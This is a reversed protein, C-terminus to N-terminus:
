SRRQVRPDGEVIWQTLLARSIKGSGTLPLEALEYYQSPRHSAPLEAAGARLLALADPSTSSRHADSYPAAPRFAAIVRHGRVPDPLGAVIVDMETGSSSDGSSGGNSNRRLAQEVAHPYVNAGSSLIMDSARGALRLKGHEDLRGQDHVTYWGDIGHTSFALGDDGWAYGSCVYPSKVCVSGLEGTDVGRGQGNRISLQVGPFARGVGDSEELVAGPELTTAAVFGLEAAGYYQHIVANPAWQQALAATASSLASGACVISSIVPALQGTSVGRRALLELVTPVLVLRNVHNASVAALAADPSFDPLAVFSGGAFISEGLAYLNMSAAMPGPAFTVTEATLGFYDTSRIFSEHWTATSRTFAKPLGSTGSSLGLLFPPDIVDQTTAWSQATEALQKRLEQPWSTDVVMATKHQRLAACFQVAVDVSAPVDIVAVPGCSPGPASVTVSTGAGPEASVLTEPAEAAALLSAYDLRQAGVTVAPRAGATKAWHQLKEIFPMAKM